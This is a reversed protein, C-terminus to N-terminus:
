RPGEPRGGPAPAPAAAEPEDPETHVVADAANFARLCAERVEHAIRHAESLTIVPDLQVELDIFLHPPEGRSRIHSSSRVGPVAEVVAAIEDPSLSATDVLTSSGRQLIGWAIRLILAAIAFAVVSDLWYVELSAAALGALVSLSAFVDSRTHGADALLVESRLTRGRSSEYHSVWANVAMTGIMVAFAAVTPTPRVDGGLREFGARVVELATVGLLLAIGLAAFSEYKHHGYPHDLDPPRSALHMGVLGIVNSSGDLVSHFGDAVMALSQVSFGISLKAAAVALNLWLVVWLVRRIAAARPAPAAQGSSPTM